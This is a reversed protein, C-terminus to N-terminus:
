LRRRMLWKNGEWHVLLYTGRFINGLLRFEKTKGDRVPIYEGEDIIQTTGKGYGRAIIGETYAGETIHDSTSIALRQGDSANTPIGKPLAWSSYVNEDTQLHLDYHTGARKAEHLRVVFNM